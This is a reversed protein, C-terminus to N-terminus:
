KKTFRSVFNEKLYCRAPPDYDRFLHCQDCRVCEVERSTGNRLKQCLDQERLFPRGLSIFDVKKLSNEMVEITKFGGVSAIATKPNSKKIVEAFETNYGEFLPYKPSANSENQLIKKKLKEPLIKSLRSANYRSRSYVSM